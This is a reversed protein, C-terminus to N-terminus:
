KYIIKVPTGINTVSYLEDISENSVAISGNTWNFTFPINKFIINFDGIGHISIESGLKTESPSCEDKKQYLIIADFEEKNIYNRTLAEAADIINPYNLKLEKYYKSSSLKSCIKYEGIPTVYDNKSTKILSSSKGLSAKYTKILMKDNFLSLVYKKKDVIILPKDIKNVGKAKM